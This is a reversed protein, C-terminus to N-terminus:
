KSRSLALGQPLAATIIKIAIGCNWNRVTQTPFEPYWIMKQHSDAFPQYLKVKLHHMIDFCAMLAWERVPHARVRNRETRRM